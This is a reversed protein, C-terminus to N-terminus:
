GDAPFFDDVSSLKSDKCLQYFEPGILYDWENVRTSSLEDGCCDPKVSPHCMVLSGNKAAAFWGRMFKPYDSSARLSYLGYFDGSLDFGYQSASKSFGFGLVRLVLAKVKADHGIFSPNVRRLWPRKMPTYRQQLVRLFVDRIGPFIHVHQHGDVFDPIKNFSKEFVDLQQILEYEVWDEDISNLLSKVVLRNVTPKFDNFPETLNFHLGLSVKDQLLKMSEFEELWLPSDVMCSVASLRGAAVLRRIGEGVDSSLGYDDACVILRKM